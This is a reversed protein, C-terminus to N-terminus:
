RNEINRVSVSLCANFDFPVSSVELATLYLKISAAGVCEFPIDNQCRNRMAGLDLHYLNLSDHHYLLLSHDGAEDESLAGVLVEEAAIPMINSVVVVASDQSSAAVDVVM